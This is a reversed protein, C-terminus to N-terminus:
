KAAYILPPHLALYSMRAYTHAGYSDCSSEVGVPDRILDIM